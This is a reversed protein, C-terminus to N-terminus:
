TSIQHSLMVGKPFGITGGTYFIGAL